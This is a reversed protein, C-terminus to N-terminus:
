GGGWFFIEPAAVADETLGIYRLSYNKLSIM